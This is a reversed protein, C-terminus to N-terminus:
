KKKLVMALAVGAVAVGGITLLTKQQQQVYTLFKSQLLMIEESTHSEEDATQTTSPTTLWDVVSNIAHGWDWGTSSETGTAGLRVQM